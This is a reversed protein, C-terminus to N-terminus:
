EAFYSAVIANAIKASKEPSESTTNVDIVFTTSDRVVKLHRASLYDVAKAKRIDEPSQGSPTERKPALLRMVPALLSTHNGFEPDEGLNLQDVVRRLVADSQLLVVQSNVTADDSSPSSAKQQNSDNDAVSSRRPDILVTATATYRPSVILIFLIAAALFAATTTAVAWRRRKLVRLSERLHHGYNEM